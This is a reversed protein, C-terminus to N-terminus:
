TPNRENRQKTEKEASKTREDKWPQWITYKFGFIVIHSIKQLDKSQFLNTYEIDMLINQPWKTCNSAM